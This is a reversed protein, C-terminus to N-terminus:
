LDNAIYERCKSRTSRFTSEKRRLGKEGCDALNGIQKRGDTQRDEEKKRGSQEKARVQVNLEFTLCSGVFDIQIDSLQNESRPKTRVSEADRLKYVKIDM